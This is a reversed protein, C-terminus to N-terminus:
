RGAAPSRTPTSTQPPLQSGPDTAPQLGGRRMGPDDWPAAHLGRDPGRARQSEPYPRPPWGRLRMQGNTWDECDATAVAVAEEGASWGGGGCGALVVLAALLPLRLPRSM